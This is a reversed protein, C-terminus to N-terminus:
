AIAASSDRPRFLSHCREKLRFLVSGEDDGILERLETFRLEGARFREFLRMTTRHAAIFDRVIDVLDASNAGAANSRLPRPSTSGM